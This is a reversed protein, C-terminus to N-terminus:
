FFPYFIKLLLIMMAHIVSLRSFSQVTYCHLMICNFKSNEMMATHMNKNSSPPHTSTEISNLLERILHYSPNSFSVNEIEIYFTFQSLCQIFLFRGRESYNESKHWNWIPACVWLIKETSFLHWWWTVVISHTLKIFVCFGM